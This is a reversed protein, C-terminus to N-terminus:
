STERPVPKVTAPEPPTANSRHTRGPMSRGRHKHCPALAERGKDRVANQDALERPPAAHTPPGQPQVLRAADERSGPPCGPTVADIAAVCELDEGEDGSAPTEAQRERLDTM